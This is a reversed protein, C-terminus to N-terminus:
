TTMNKKKKEVPRRLAENIKPVVRDKWVEPPKVEPFFHLVYQQLFTKRQPDLETKNRIGGGFFSYNLRRLNEDFLEPFLKETLNKAFNGPGSSQTKIRNVVSPDLRYPAPINAFESDSDSNGVTVASGNERNNVM